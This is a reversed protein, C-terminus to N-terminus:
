FLDGNRIGIVTSPSGIFVRQKNRDLLVVQDSVKGVLEIFHNVMLVASHHTKALSLTMEITEKAGSEDMSATPEDLVLIQPETCLARALLCRQQEGGSLTRFLRRRLHTIRTSDIAADIKIKDESNLKRGVGRLGYRGTEILDIVRIPYIPDMAERQPVYGIRTQEALELEGGHLPVLGLLSKLLTSKGSGNHGIICTVQGPLLDFTIPPVVRSGHYGIELNRARLLPGIKEPNLMTM